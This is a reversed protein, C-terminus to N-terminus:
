NYNIKVFGRWGSYIKIEKGESLLGFIRPCVRMWEGYEQLINVSEESEFDKCDMEVYRFRGCLYCFVSFREYKLDVWKVEGKSIRIKKERSLLKNIDVMVRVRMSREYGLFDRNDM